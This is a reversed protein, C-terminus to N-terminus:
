CGSPKERREDHHRDDIADELKVADRRKNQQRRNQRDNEEVLRHETIRPPQDDRDDARPEVGLEIQLM